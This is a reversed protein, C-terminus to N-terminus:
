RRGAARSRDSDNFIGKSSFEDVIKVGQNGDTFFETFQKRRLRHRCQTDLSALRLAVSFCRGNALVALQLM